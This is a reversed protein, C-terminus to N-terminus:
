KCSECRAGDQRNYRIRQDKEIPESCDACKSAFRAFIIRDAPGGAAKERELRKLRDRTRGITGGLNQLAYAPAPLVQARDYASMAKLEDRHAKRYEANAAKMAERRAELKALKATLSEIADPDDDYIAGRAQAEIEAASSAQRRAKDDLDIAARMGDQIRAADRRHRRESHHGILIPQGFPIGDSIQKAGAYRADSKAANGESWDRLKEARAMRRERYTM